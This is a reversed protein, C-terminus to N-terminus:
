IMDRSSKAYSTKESQSYVAQILDADVHALLPSSIRPGKTGISFWQTIALVHVGWRCSLLIYSRHDYLPMVRWGNSNCSFMMVHFFKGCKQGKTLFDVASQHNRRWFPWNHSAKDANCKADPYAIIDVCFHQIYSSMWIIVQSGTNWIFSFLYITLVFRTRKDVCIYYHFAM